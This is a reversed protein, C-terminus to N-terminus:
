CHRPSWRNVEKIRHRLFGFFFFFIAILVFLVLKDLSISISLSAIQMDNAQIYAPMLLVSLLYFSGIFIMVNGLNVPTKKFKRSLLSTTILTIFFVFGVSTGVAFSNLDTYAALTTCSIFIATLCIPCPISLLLFSHRSIDRRKSNWEKVTHIGAALMAISLLTFFIVYVTTIGRSLILQGVRIPILELLQNVAISLLLYIGGMYVIEKKKLSALGCGIGAKAGLVFISLFVAIFLGPILNM